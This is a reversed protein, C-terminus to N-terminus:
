TGHFQPRKNLELGAGGLFFNQVRAGEWSSDLEVNDALAPVWGCAFIRRGQFLGLLWVGLQAEAPQSGCVVALSQLRHKNLDGVQTM